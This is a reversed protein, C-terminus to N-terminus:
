DAAAVTFRGILTRVRDSLEPRVAEHRIAILQARLRREFESRSFCTRCVALHRDLEGATARGLEGDLHLALLRLADECNRVETTM